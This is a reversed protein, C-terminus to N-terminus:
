SWVVASAFRIRRDRRCTFPNAVPSFFVNRGAVPDGPVSVEREVAADIPRPTALIWAAAAASAALCSGLALRWRV